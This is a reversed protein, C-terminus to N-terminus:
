ETDLTGDIRFRATVTDMSNIDSLSHYFRGTAYIRPGDPLQAIAISRLQDMGGPNLDQFVVGTGGFSTDLTGDANLQALGFNDTDAWTECGLGVVIKQTGDAATYFALSRALYGPPTAFTTYGTGNFTTDLTGNANYRLVMPQAATITTTSVSAGVVIRGSRDLALSYIGDFTSGPLHGFIKGGTGFSTDLTGNANYQALFASDTHTITSYSFGGVLIKGSPLALVTFASDSQNNFDLTTYGTKNFTKDLAGSSTYRAVVVDSQWTGARYTMLDGVAVIRSQTDLAVAHIVSAVGNYPTGIQTTVVGKSGFSTDTTGNSNLRALTMYGAPNEGAFVIKQDPQLLGTAVNNRANPLRAIGSVGFSTDLTGNTNYRVACLGSSVPYGPTEPTSYEGISIPRNQSDIAVVAGGDTGGMGSVDTVNVWPTSAAAMKVVGPTRSPSTVARAPHAPAVPTRLPKAAQQVHQTPSSHLAHSALTRASPASKVQAVLGASGNGPHAPLLSSLGIRATSLLERTELMDARPQCALRRRPRHFTSSRTM